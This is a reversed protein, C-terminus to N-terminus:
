QAGLCAGFPSDKLLEVAEDGLQNVGPGAALAHAVLVHLCKVRTPMGGASVSDIEPVDGLARRDALYALHARRYHAALDADDALRATMQAMVGQAELTSTSAVALPCTLYYVTPFPTGDPLRPATVVVGPSGDACRWAVRLLGRPTRGLQEEISALDAPDISSSTSM